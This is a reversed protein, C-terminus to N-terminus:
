RGKGNRNAAPRPWTNISGWKNMWGPEINCSNEYSTTSIDHHQKIDRPSHYKSSEESDKLAEHSRYTDGSSFKSCGNYETCHSNERLIFLIHGVSTVVWLVMVQIKMATFVETECRKFPEIRSLSEWGTQTWEVAYVWILVYRNCGQTSHLTLLSTCTYKHFEM